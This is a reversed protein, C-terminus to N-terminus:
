GAKATFYFFLLRIGFYYFLSCLIFSLRFSKKVDKRMMVSIVAPDVTHAALEEEAPEADPLEEEAPEADPLEEEALEADPLEEEETVM